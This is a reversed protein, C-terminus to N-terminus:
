TGVKKLQFFDRGKNCLIKKVPIKGERIAKIIGRGIVNDFELHCAFDCEWCFILPCPTGSGWGCVEKAYNEQM